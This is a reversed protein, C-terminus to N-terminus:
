DVTQRSIQSLLYATWRYPHDPPRTVLTVKNHRSIHLFCIRAPRLHRVSLVCIDANEHGAWLDVIFQDYGDM